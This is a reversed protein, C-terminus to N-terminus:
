GAIWGERFDWPGNGPVGLYGRSHCGAAVPPILTQCVVVYPRLEVQYLV